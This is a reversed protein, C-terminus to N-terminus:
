KNASGVGIKALNADLSQASLAGVHQARIIGEADIFFSAPIAQVRYRDFVQDTGQLARFTMGQTEMIQRIEKVSSNNEVALVVLNPYHTEFRSQILQMEAICPQCWTAWFNLLIPKGMFTSLQTSEGNLTKLTFDPAPAHIM